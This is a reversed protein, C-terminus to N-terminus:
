ARERAAAERRKREQDVIYDAAHEDDPHILCGDYDPARRHRVGTGKFTFASDSRWQWRAGGITRYLAAGQKLKTM